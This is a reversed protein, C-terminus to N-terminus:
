GKLKVFIHDNILLTKEIYRTVAWYPTSGILYYHDYPWHYAQEWAQKAMVIERSTLARDQTPKGNKWCKFQHPQFVIANPSLQRKISRTYIVNAVANMGVQGQDSAEYAITRYIHETAESHADRAELALWLLVLLIIIIFMEKVM